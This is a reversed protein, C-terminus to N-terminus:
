YEHGPERESRNNRKDRDPYTGTNFALERRQLYQGIGAETIGQEQLSRIADGRDLEHLLHDSKLKTMEIQNPQFRNPAQVKLNKDNIDTLNKQMGILDKVYQSENGAPMNSLERLISAGLLPDSTLEPSFRHLTSFSSQLRKKDLEKLSPDYEMIKKLNRSKTFGRRAAGYLDSAISLGIAGAM